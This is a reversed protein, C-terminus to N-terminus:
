LRSIFYTGLLVAISVLDLVTFLLVWKWYRAAEATRLIRGQNTYFVGQILTIPIYISLGIGVVALPWNRRVHDLFTPNM